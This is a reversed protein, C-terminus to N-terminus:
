DGVMEDTDTGAVRMWIEELTLGFLGLREVTRGTRWYDTGHLVCALHVISKITPTPVGLLDGFSAMPVLSAPIDDTIYRHHLGPPAAIGKYARNSQMARCLNDARVGYAQRLFHLASRVSLGLARAVARREDDMEELIRAVSPSIGERYYDFQIQQEIRTANLITPAPHFIAGINDFSTELVNEAATFVPLPVRLFELVRETEGAPLAALPVVRKLAHIRVRAPGSIRSAFLFTQAEAVCVRDSVGLGDLVFRFELAGGTRGPNLVIVQGPRLHPAMQSAMPRHAFAPLAVMIVHAGRVVESLDTSVEALRAFGTFEGELHIGGEGAVAQLRDPTRNYLRTECGQMALYGALAQGGGGAGVVAFRTNRREM